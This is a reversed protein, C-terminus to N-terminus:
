CRVTSSWRGERSCAATRSSVQNWGSSSWHNSTGTSAGFNSATSHEQREEHGFLGVFWAEFFASAEISLGSYPLPPFRRPSRGRSQWIPEGDDSDLVIRYRGDNEDVDFRAHHHVGPFLRGGLAFNLWSSTDRRPVFVGERVEWRAGVRRCDSPRRKGLYSWHHRSFVPAPHAESPDPM